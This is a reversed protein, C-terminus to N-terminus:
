YNDTLHASDPVMKTQNRIQKPIMNIKELNGGFWWFGGAKNRFTNSSGVISNIHLNMARAADACSNFTNIREGNDNYCSVEKRSNKSVKITNLTGDWEKGCSIVIKRFFAVPNGRQKIAEWVHAPKMKIFRCAAALSEFEGILIKDKLNYIYTLRSSGNTLPRPNGTAGGDVINSLTGNQQSIRGYLSVFYKEKSLADKEDKTEYIIEVKYDTKNYIKNWIHNKGHRSYARQYISRIDQKHKKKTGKGIYFPVQKDLRIHRYIYYIKEEM